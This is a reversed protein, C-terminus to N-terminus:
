GHSAIVVVRKRKPSPDAFGAHNGAQTKGGQRNGGQM